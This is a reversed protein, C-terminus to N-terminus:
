VVIVSLLYPVPLSFHETMAATIEQVKSMMAQWVQFTQRCTDALCVKASELQSSLVSYFPLQLGM